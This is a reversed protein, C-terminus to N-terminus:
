KEAGTWEKGEDMSRRFYISANRGESVLWAMCIKNGESAIAPYKCNGTMSIFATDDAFCFVSLSMILFCIEIFTQFRM